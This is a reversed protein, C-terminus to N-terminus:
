LILYNVQLWFLTLLFSFILSLLNLQWKIKLRGSGSIVFYFLLGLYPFILFWPSIGLYAGVQGKDQLYMQEQHGLTIIYPLARYFFPYFIFPYLFLVKKRGLLLWFVIAQVLSVFSGAAAVLPSHWTELYYGQVPRTRNLDMEMANGLLSGALFHGGEHFVMTVLVAISFFLLYLLLRRRSM